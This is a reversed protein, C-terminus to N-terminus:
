NLKVRRETFMDPDDESIRDILVNKIPDLSLRKNAAM